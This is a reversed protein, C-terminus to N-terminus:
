SPGGVGAGGMGVKVPRHCCACLWAGSRLAREGRSGLCRLSDHHVDPNILDVVVHGLDLIRPPVSTVSFSGIGAMPQDARNRSVSPLRIPRNWISGATFSPPPPQSRYRTECGGGLSDHRSDGVEPVMQRTPDTQSSSGELLRATFAM